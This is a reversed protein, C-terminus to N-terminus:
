GLWLAKQYRFRDVLLPVFFRWADREEIVNLSLLRRTDLTPRYIFLYFLFFCFFFFSERQFALVLIGCFPLIALTWYTIRNRWAENMVATSTQYLYYFCASCLPQKSRNM